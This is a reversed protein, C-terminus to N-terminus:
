PILPTWTSGDTTHFLRSHNAEETQALAWGSFGGAKTPVFELQALYGSLNQNAPTSGWTLAGDSSFYLNAGGDWSWAHLADAIAPLGPMIVRKADSPDGKWTLGGDHTDYLTFDTRDPLYITLPLFGDKGFFVPAQPMYMYSEYGPPLPVSQQSWTVGGDHTIYLYVDGDKPISGTVWGTSADLFTMGNKIGGLPLEDSAGPQTPDNHFVSTWTLGGNSTQFIEVAESGAGAGRDALARGTKADLFQIFGGGFPVTNSNWTVGGDSTQYLTGSFFDPGPVVVWATSANLVTLSTSYGVPGSGPPTAKFWTRGGDATRVVYGSDNLAIGWGNDEDQFDIRALTPSALVPLAPPSPFNTVTPVATATPNPIPITTAVPATSTAAAPAPMVTSTQVGCAQLSLSIALITLLIRPKM